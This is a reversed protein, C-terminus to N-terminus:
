RFEFSVSCQVVKTYVTHCWQAVSPPMLAFESIIIIFRLCTCVPPHYISLSPSSYGASYSWHPWQCSWWCETWRWANCCDPRGDGNWRFGHISRRRAWCDVLPCWYLECSWCWRHRLVVSCLVCHYSEKVGYSHFLIKSFESFMPIYVKLQDSFVKVGDYTFLSQM